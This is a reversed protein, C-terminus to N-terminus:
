TDFYIYISIYQKIYLGEFQLNYLLNNLFDCKHELPSIANCDDVYVTLVICKNCSPFIFIYEGLLIMNIGSPFIISTSSYM